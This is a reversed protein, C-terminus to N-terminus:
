SVQLPLSGLNHVCFQYNYQTNNTTFSFQTTKTSHSYTLINDHKKAPVHIKFSYDTSNSDVQGAFLINQAINEGYCRLEKSNITAIFNIAHCPALFAALYAIIM